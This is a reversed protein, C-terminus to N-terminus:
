ASVAYKAEKILPKILIRQNNDERIIKAINGRAFQNAKEFVHSPIGTNLLSPYFAELVLLHEPMCGGM